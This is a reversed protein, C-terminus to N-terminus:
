AVSDGINEPRNLYHGSRLEAMVQKWSGAKAWDPFAAITMGDIGSAGKNARVQKWAKLINEHHLVQEFLNDSFAPQMDRRQTVDGGSPTQTNLHPL